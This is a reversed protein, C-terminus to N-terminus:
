IYIYVHIYIVYVHMYTYRKHAFFGPIYTKMNLFLSLYMHHRFTKTCACHIYM